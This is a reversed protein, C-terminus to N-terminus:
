WSRGVVISLLDGPDAPDYWLPLKGGVAPLLRDATTVTRTVHHDRGEGDTFAVTLRARVADGSGDLRQVATVIASTRRGTETVRRATAALRAVRRQVVAWGIAAAIGLVALVAAVLGLVANSADGEVAASSFPLAGVIGLATGLLAVAVPWLAAGITTLVPSLLVVSAYAAGLSGLLGLVVAVVKAIVVGAGAGAAIDAPFTLGAGLIVSAILAAVAIRVLVAQPSVVVRDQSVASM